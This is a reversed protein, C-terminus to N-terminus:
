QHAEWSLTSGQPGHFLGRLEAASRAYCGASDLAQAKFVVLGNQKSEVDGIQDRIKRDSWAM